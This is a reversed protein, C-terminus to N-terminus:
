SASGALTPAPCVEFIEDTLEEASFPCVSGREM